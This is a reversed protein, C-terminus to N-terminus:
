PCTSQVGALACACFVVDPSRSVLCPRIRCLMVKWRTAVGPWFLSQIAWLLCIGPVLSRRVALDVWQARLTEMWHEHQTGTEIDPSSSDVKNRGRDAGLSIRPDVPLRGGTGRKAPQRKPPFFLPPGHSGPRSSIATARCVGWPERPNGFNFVSSVRM